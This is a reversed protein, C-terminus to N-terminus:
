SGKKFPDKSTSNSASLKGLSLKIKPIANQTGFGNITILIIKNVSWDKKRLDKLKESTGALMGRGNGNQNVDHIPNQVILQKTRLEVSLRSAEHLSPEPLKVLRGDM